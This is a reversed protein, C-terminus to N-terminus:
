ISRRAPAMPAGGTSPMRREGSVIFVLREGDPTWMPAWNM